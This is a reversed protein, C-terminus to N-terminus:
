CMSKCIVEYTIIKPWSKKAKNSEPTFLINKPLVPLISFKATELHLTLYNYYYIMEKRKYKKSGRVSSIEIEVHRQAFPWAVKAMRESQSLYISLVDHVTALLSEHSHKPTIVM